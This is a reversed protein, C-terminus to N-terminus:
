SFCVTASPTACSAAPRETSFSASASFSVSIPSSRRRTCCSNRGWCAYREFSHGHAGQNVRLCDGNVSQRDAVGFAALVTGVRDQHGRPRFADVGEVGGRRVE